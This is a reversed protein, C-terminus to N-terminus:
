WGRPGGGCNGFGRGRGYGYRPSDGFTEDAKEAMLTQLDYVEGTLQAVKKEDPNEQRMMADLESRKVFIQKKIDKTEEFFAATKENDEYAVANACYGPGDCYGYGPGPGFGYNGRANAMSFGTVGITGILAAALLYKKM